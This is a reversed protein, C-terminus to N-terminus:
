RAFCRMLWRAATIGLGKMDKDDEGLDNAHFRDNPTSETAESKNALVRQDRQMLDEHHLRSLMDRTCLMEKWVTGAIVQKKRWDTKGDFPERKNTQPKAQDIKREKTRDDWCGTQCDFRAIPPWVNILMCNYFSKEHVSFKYFTLNYFYPNLLKKDDTQSFYSIYTHTPPHTLACALFARLLLDFSPLPRESCMWSHGWSWTSLFPEVSLARENSTNAQM